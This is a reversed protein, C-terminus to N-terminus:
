KRQKEAIQNDSNKKQEQVKLKRSQANLSEIEDFRSMQTREQDFWIKDENTHSQRM